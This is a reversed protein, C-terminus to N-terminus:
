LCAFTHLIHQDLYLEQLISYQLLILNKSDLLNLFNLGEVTNLGAPVRNPDVYEGYRQKGIFTAYFGSISPLFVAYDKQETTLDNNM